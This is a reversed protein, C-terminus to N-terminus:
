IEIEGIPVSVVMNEKLDSFLYKSNGYSFFYVGYTKNKKKIGFFLSGTSFDNEDNAVIRIGM